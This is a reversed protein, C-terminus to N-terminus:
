VGPGLGHDDIPQDSIMTKTSGPIVYTRETKVQLPYDLWSGRM